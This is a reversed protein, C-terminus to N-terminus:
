ATLLQLATWNRKGPKPDLCKSSCSCLKWSILDSQDWKLIFFYSTDPLTFIMTAPIQVFAKLFINLFSFYTPQKLGFAPRIEPKSIKSTVFEKTDRKTLDSHSVVALWECQFTDEQPPPPKHSKVELIEPTMGIERPRPFNRKYSRWCSRLIWSVGGLVM